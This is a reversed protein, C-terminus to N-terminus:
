IPFYTLLQSHIYTYQNPKFILRYLASHARSNARTYELPISHRLFIFGGYFDEQNMLSLRPLMAVEDAEVIRAEFTLTKCTTPMLRMMREPSSFGGTYSQVEAKQQNSSTSSSPIVNLLSKEPQSSRCQQWIYNGTLFHLFFFFEM